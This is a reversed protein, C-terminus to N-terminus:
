VFKENRTYNKEYKKNPVLIKKVNNDSNSVTTTIRIIFTNTQNM